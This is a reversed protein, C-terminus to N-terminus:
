GVAVVPSDGAYLEKVWSISSPNSVILPLLGEPMLVADKLPLIPLIEPYEEAASTKEETSTKFISKIWDM